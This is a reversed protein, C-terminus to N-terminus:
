CTGVTVNASKLKDISNSNSFDLYPILQTKQGKHCTRGYSPFTQM